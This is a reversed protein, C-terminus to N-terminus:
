VAGGQPEGPGSWPPPSWPEEALPDPPQTRREMVVVVEDGVTLVQVIRYGISALENLKDELERASWGKASWERVRVVKYM